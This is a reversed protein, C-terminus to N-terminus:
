FPWIFNLLRSIYGPKTTEDVVGKGGYGVKLEAVQSSAISNNVDLMHRNCWAPWTCGSRDRQQAPHGPLGRLGPQRQGAGEGGPRHHHHHVRREPRHQRGGQLHQHQRHHAHRRRRLRRRVRPHRDPEAPRHANYSNAGARSTALDGKLTATTAETVRITVLDNLRRARLDSMMLRDQWLSGDSLPTQSVGEQYPIKPQKDREPDHAAPMSCGLVVLGLAIPLIYRM